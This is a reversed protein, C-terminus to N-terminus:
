KLLYADRITTTFVTTDKAKLTARLSVSGAKEPHDLTLVHGKKGYPALTVPTKRWTTGRDYSVEATLTDFGSKAAPGHLQLPVTFAGRVTTAGDLGLAPAFAVTSLPIRASAGAAPRTSPFEWAARVRTSTSAVAAPRTATSSLKYRKSGPALTVEGCPQAEEDAYTTKGSTVTTRVTGTQASGNNGARDAFLPLCLELIDGSRRAFASQPIRPGLVGTGTEARYTTGAEYQRPGYQYHSLQVEADPSASAYQHVGFAWTIGPPTSVYQRVTAPLPGMPSEAGLTFSGQRTWTGQVASRPATQTRGKTSSGARLIIQALDATRVTHRLGGFFHGRSPVIVRYHHTGKTWVGTMLAEFRDAAVAKGLRGTTFQKLDPVFLTTASASNGSGAFLNMAGEYYAAGGPATIEVPRTKRADARVVTDRTLDLRPQVIMATRSEDEGVPTAVYSSMRYTGRPLRTTVTGEGPETFLLPSLGAVPGEGELWIESGAPKGQADTADIRVDYSEVEREVAVSTRASPGGGEPTAVLRAGFLGDTDGVRTDATVRVQATGGAPVTLRQASLAFMGEPATGVTSGTTGRAGQTTLSLGVVTDRDGLNRYTVTRTLPKDDHHPWRQVGFGVSTTESVIKQTGARDANILGTGQEVTAPNKADQAPAASSAIVQKLRAASWTPHQQALLAATGAVHPAAMSTGSMATYGDGGNHPLSSAGSRAAIIDRGPAVVDPKLAADATPGVSSFDSTSGDRDASGVTLAAAASGPSGVTRAGPGENGSTIVFLINKDRTLNNVATELPDTGPTDEGGLSLNAVKAGRAAAWEMGAIIGSEDGEGEDDLVKAILLDSHPAVGKYRGGSRAGTGGITSAVHTGHGHRDVIDKSASFNRSELIRGKLDPHNQDVGSDLVAVKVGDGQFGRKWIAPAGIQAVSRDLNVSRRGDLWVREVGAAATRFGAKHETTLNKWLGSIGDKEAKLVDAGVSPLSRRVETDTAAIRSRSTAAAGQADKLGRTYSVILPISGRRQDDLKAAVLGRVDFLRPDLRGQALLRGADSPVVLTRDATTRVHVSIHSRGQGREVRAVSGRADLHVRDGTILTVTRGTSAAAPARLSGGDAPAAAAPAALTPLSMALAAALVSVPGRPIRPHM